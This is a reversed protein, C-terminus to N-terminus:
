FLIAAVLGLRGERYTKLSRVPYCDPIYINASWSICVHDVLMCVSVLWNAAPQM